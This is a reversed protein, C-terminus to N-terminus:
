YKRYLGILKGQIQVRNPPLIRVEYAANAPELAISAGRRRFRKLTAEEQDILAVVIDGTDASDNKQILVTDGDHIGAEVMSDGRVELAYHEGSGLMDPPVSITHSRTQLAEISHLRVVCPKGSPIANRTAWVAHDWCWELWVIDAWAIAAALEEGPGVSVFRTEYHCELAPMLPALFSDARGKVRDALLLRPM